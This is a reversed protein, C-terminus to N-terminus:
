SMRRTAGVRPSQGAITLAVTLYYSPNATTGKNVLNYYLLEGNFGVVSTGTTSCNAITCIHRLPLTYGDLMELCTGNGTGLGTVTRWLFSYGGHQNPSEYNYIQGYSPMTENYFGILNGTYLDYVNFGQSIYADARAPAFIHGNIIIATFDLGQYHGTEYGTVGFRADM